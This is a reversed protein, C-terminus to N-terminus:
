RSSAFGLGLGLEQYRTALTPNIAAVDGLVRDAEETRGALDLARVLNLDNYLKFIGTGERAAWYRLFTDGRQFGDVAAEYDGEIAARTGEMHALAARGFDAYNRPQPKSKEVSARLAEEILDAVDAHGLLLALRHKLTELDGSRVDACDTGLLTWADEWEGEHFTGWVDARCSLTRALREQGGCHEAVTPVVSAFEETRGQLHYLDFLRAYSSCFDPRIELAREIMEEAESERGLLILLEAISDYPNAQDPAIFMYTRFRGEAEAFNGRAMAIYGLYNQARVWNPHKDVLERYYREAEDWQQERWAWEAQTFLSYPDEPYAAAYEALVRESEEFDHEMEALQYGVLFQERDTLPELDIRGIEEKRKEFDEGDLFQLSLVRPLAFDPDLEIAAELREIAERFYLKNLADLAAEFEAIAEPSSSTWALEPKRARLAVGAVVAVLAVLAVPLLIKRM